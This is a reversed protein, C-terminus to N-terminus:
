EPGPPDEYVLGSRYATIVAQVRDRADLKQLIRAVHTKVTAEGIVLARAIETNNLGEAMHRLVDRERETLAQVRSRAPARPGQRSFQNLLRRTVTPALM